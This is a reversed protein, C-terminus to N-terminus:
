LQSSDGDNDLIEKAQKLTEKMWKQLSGETNDLYGNWLNWFFVFINWVEYLKVSRFLAARENLTLGDDGYEGGKVKCMAALLLDIVKVADGQYKGRINIIDLLQGSSLKEPKHEIHYEIGNLTITDKIKLKEFQSVNLGGLEEIMKSFDKLRIKSADDYSIDKIISVAYINQEMLPLDSDIEVLLQYQGVSLNYLETREM